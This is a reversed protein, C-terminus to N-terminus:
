ALMSKLHHGISDMLTETRPIKIEKKFIDPAIEASCPRQYPSVRNKGTKRKRIILQCNMTKSKASFMNQTRPIETKSFM